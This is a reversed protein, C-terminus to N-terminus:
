LQNPVGAFTNSKIGRPKVTSYEANPAQPAICSWQDGRVVRCFHDPCNRNEVDYWAGGTGMDISGDSYHQVGSRKGETWARVALELKGTPPAPPCLQAMDGLKVKLAPSPAETTVTRTEASYPSNHWSPTKTSGPPATTVGTNPPPTSVPPKLGETLWRSWYSIRQENTILPTGGSGFPLADANPMRPPYKPNYPHEEPSPFVPRSNGDPYSKGPQIWPRSPDKEYTTGMSPPETSQRPSAERWKPPDTADLPKPTTPSGFQFAGELKESLKESLKEGRWEPPSLFYALVIGGVFLVVITVDIPMM